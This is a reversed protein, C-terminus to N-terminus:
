NKSIKALETALNKDIKTIFTIGRAELIKLDGSKDIIAKLTPKEKTTGNYKEFFLYHPEDGDVYEIKYSSTMDKIYREPSKNQDVLIPTGSATLSGIQVNFYKKSASM